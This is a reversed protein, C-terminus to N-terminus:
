KSISFESYCKLVKRATIDWTYNERIFKEANRSKESVTDKERVASMIADRIGASSTPCGWGADAARIEEAMGTGETVICPLGCSLAELIGMSMGESRSTQIFFDAKSYKENKEEGFVGDGVAVLDSIGYRDTLKQIESRCGDEDPGFLNFRCRNERLFGSIEKVAELMLDIGKISIELRGIYLFNLTGDKEKNEKRVYAEPIAIGNTGFFYKMKIDTQEKERVSLFQLAQAGCIFKKFLLLNGAKKKLWKKHQAQKTLCGHPVVVYPVRDKRLKKYIGIYEPRYVEHFVVLDPRDFPQPLSGISFPQPLTLLNRVGSVDMGTTNILGVDAFPQQAIVQKPVANDVGAYKNNTLHAIHLVVM